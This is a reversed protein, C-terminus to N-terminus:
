KSSILFYENKAFVDCTDTPAPASWAVEGTMLDIAYLGPSVARDPTVDVIVASARDANAAYVFRGDTALGWHIGGLASGKGVRTSWLVEGNADPDLAWVVGSKQGAVLIDKGDERTVLIPAMGFDHDPGPPAPCNERNRFTTCAM